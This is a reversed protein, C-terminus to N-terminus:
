RNMEEHLEDHIDLYRGMAQFAPWPLIDGWGPHFQKHEDLCSGLDEEYAPPADPPTLKLVEACFTIQDALKIIPHNLLDVSLGYRDMVAEELGEELVKFSSEVGCEWCEAAAERKVPSPVDGTVGEVDDHHLATLRVALQVYPTFENGWNNVNKALLAVVVNHVNVAHQAVSYAGYNGVYRSEHSLTRAMLVPDFVAPDPSYLYVRRNGRLQMYPNDQRKGPM